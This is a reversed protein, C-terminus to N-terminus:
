LCFTMSSIIRTVCFMWSLIWNGAQPDDRLHFARPFRVLLLGDDFRFPLLDARQFDECAHRVLIIELGVLRQVHISGAGM